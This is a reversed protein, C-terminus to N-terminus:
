KKRKRKRTELKQTILWEQQIEQLRLQKARALEQQQQKQQFLKMENEKKENELKLEYEIRTQESQLHLLKLEEERQKALQLHPGAQELTFRCFQSHTVSKSHLFNSNNNNNNNVTSTASSSQTLLQLKTFLNNAIKLSNLAQQVQNLHKM